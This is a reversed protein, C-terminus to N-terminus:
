EANIKELEMSQIPDIDSAMDQLRQKVVLLLDTLADRETATLGSLEEEVMSEAIPTIEGHIRRGLETMYVRKVRRDTGDPRRELWGFEELKDILRGASAKEVELLEALEKQSVGPQDAVRRLAIWQPRTFGLNRVRRDFVTRQLRAAEVIMAALYRGASISKQDIKTM